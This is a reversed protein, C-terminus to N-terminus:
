KEELINHTINITSDSNNQREQTILKKIKKEIWVLQFVCFVLLILGNYLVVMSWNDIWLTLLYIVPIKLLSGIGYFFIQTRLEAMGNAVTTLVVNFIYIGGYFAFILATSYSVVIAEEQLWIDVLFQCIFAMIFEFIVAIGSLMYLFRNTSRIKHYKKQALDKTMKSWLPTLALMFLSGVVTFLRYYISYDVVDASSFMKTIIIENTSTILMFFIQAIFFQAGFGLMSKATNLDCCKFSPTCERLIKSKFIFLSSVLLPANVAIVHVVTLAILNEEITEGKFLAIYILPIVSTILALVNNISSKQLAYIVSNVTKLVFSLCVGLFLIIVATHMTESSVVTKDVNLFSNLDVISLLVVGVVSIPLIVAILAAYTSSIYKKAKFKDGVALSETLRNRLGNGLGLDCIIIWNLLSLITYWLGLVEDNNFYKIYLPMSFLSIFLSIGKIGFASIIHFILNREDKDKLYEKLKM